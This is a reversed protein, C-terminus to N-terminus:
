NVEPQNQELQQRWHQTVSDWIRKERNDGVITSRWYSLRKLYEMWTPKFTPVTEYLLAVTSYVLYMFSLMHELSNPLHSQLLQLFSYIGHQWMRQPMAYKSALERLAPTASPHQSAFFFDHHEYLLTKHLAILAQWKSNNLTGPEMSEVQELAAQKKDIEICKAEVMVLGAYIGKVEAVLQGQLLPRARPQPLLMDCDESHPLSPADSKHVQEHFSPPLTHVLADGEAESRKMTVPSASSYRESLSPCRGTLWFKGGSSPNTSNAQIFPELSDSAPLRLFDLAESSWRSINDDEAMMFALIESIFASNNNNDVRLSVDTKHYSIEPVLKIQGMVSLRVSDIQIEEAPFTELLYSLAKLVYKTVTAIEWEEPPLLQFGLDLLSVDLYEGVVHLREEFFYIENISAVHPHQVRSFLELVLLPATSYSERVVVLEWRKRRHCALYGEDPQIQKIFIYDAKPDKFQIRVLRRTSSM